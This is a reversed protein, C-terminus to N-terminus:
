ISINVQCIKQVCKLVQKFSAMKYIGYIIQILLVVVFFRQINMITHNAKIILLVKVLRTTKQISEPDLQFDAM